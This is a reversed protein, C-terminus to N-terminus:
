KGVGPGLTISFLDYSQTKWREPSVWRKILLKDQKNTSVDIDSRRRKSLSRVVLSPQLHRRDAPRQPLCVWLATRLHWGWRCALFLCVLSILVCMPFSRANNWRLSRMPTPEERSLWLSSPKMCAAQIELWAYYIIILHRVMYWFVILIRNCIYTCIPEITNVIITNQCQNVSPVVPNIPMANCLLAPLELVIYSLLLSQSKCSTPRYWWTQEFFSFAWWCCRLSPYYPFLSSQYGALSLCRYWFLNDWYTKREVQWVHISPLVVHHCFM